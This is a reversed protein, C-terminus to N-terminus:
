AALEPRGTRAHQERTLTALTTRLTALPVDGFQIGVSFNFEASARVAPRRAREQGTGPGPPPM